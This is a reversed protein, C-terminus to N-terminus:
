VAVVGHHRLFGLLPLLPLGLIADHDGEAREFLHAGLGEIRYAGVSGLVSDEETALYSDLFAESFARMTLRPASAHQWIREGGRACVIATELVHTRGRLALLHSRAMGLSEPKAFWTGDSILIQDAGIVLAEPMRCSVRRAKLDALLIATEAGSAGEAQAARRYEEEDVTAPQVDFILGASRLLERRSLSASALILPPSGFQLPSVTM